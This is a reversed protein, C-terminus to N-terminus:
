FTAASMLISCTEKSLGNWLFRRGIAIENNLPRLLVNSTNVNDRHDNEISKVMSRNNLYIIIIRLESTLAVCQEWLFNLFQM